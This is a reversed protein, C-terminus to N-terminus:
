LFLKWENLAEKDVEVNDARTLIHYAEYFDKEEIKIKMMMEVSATVNERHNDAKLAEEFCLLSDVIKQQQYYILGKFYHATSSSNGEKQTSMELDKLAKDIEGKEFFIVGRKEICIHAMDTKCGDTM